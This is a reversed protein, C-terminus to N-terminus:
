QFDPVGPPAIRLKHLWQRAVQSDFVLSGYLHTAAVKFAARVPALLAEAAAHQVATTYTSALIGDVVLEGAMTHANFLGIDRVQTRVVQVAAHRGRCLVIDGLAVRSATVMRGNALLYHGESVTLECSGNGASLRVFAAHRASTDRHSFAYVASAVGHRDQVYDGVRVTDMRRESGDAMLVRASAPFCAGRSQGDNLDPTPSAEAGNDADTNTNTDDEGDPEMSETEMDTDMEADTSPDPQLAARSPAAPVSKSPSPYLQQSTRSRIYICPEPGLSPNYTLMYSIPPQLIFSTRLIIINSPKAFVTQTFPPIVKTGCIRKSQDIGVAFSQDLELLKSMIDSQAQRQTAGSLYEESTVLVVSGGSNCPHSDQLIASHPLEFTHDGTQSLEDRIEIGRSCSDHTTSVLTYLGPIDSIDFGADQGNQRTVVGVPTRQRAQSGSIENARCSALLLFPLLLHTFNVNRFM